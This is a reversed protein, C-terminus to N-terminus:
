ESYISDEHRKKCDPYYEFMFCFPHGARVWLPYAEAKVKSYNPSSSTVNLADLERLRAKDRIRTERVGEAFSKAFAKSMDSIRKDLLAKVNPDTQSRVVERSFEIIDENKSLMEAVESWAADNSDQIQIKKANVAEAKAEIGSWYEPNKEKYKNFAKTALWNVLGM